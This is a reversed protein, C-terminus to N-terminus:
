FHQMQLGPQAPTDQQQDRFTLVAAVEERHRPHPPRPRERATAPAEPGGRGRRRHSCRCGSGRVDPHRNEQSGRLWAQDRDAQM